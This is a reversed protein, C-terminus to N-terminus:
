SAILNQLLTDDDRLPGATSERVQLPNEPRAVDAPIGMIGTGQM